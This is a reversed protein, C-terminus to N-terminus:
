FRYSASVGIRRGAVPFRLGYGTPERRVLPTAETGGGGRLAENAANVIADVAERTLDGQACEIRQKASPM